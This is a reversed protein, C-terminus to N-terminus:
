PVLPSDQEWSPLMSEKEPHVPAVIQIYRTEAVRREVHFTMVDDAASCSAVLTAAYQVAQLVAKHGAVKQFAFESVEGRSALHVCAPSPNAVNARRHVVAAANKM